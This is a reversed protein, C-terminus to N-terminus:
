RGFTFRQRCWVAVPEGARRAPRYRMALAAAIARRGLSSDAPGGAVVAETVGGREDVHVDLDVWGRAGGPLMLRAPELPVPPRLAQDLPLHDVAGSPAPSESPPSDVPADAPTRQESVTLLTLRARATEPAVPSPTLTARRASDALVTLPLDRPLLAQPAPARSRGCGALVGAM